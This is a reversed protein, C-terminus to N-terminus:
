THQITYPVPQNTDTDSLPPNDEQSTHLQTHQAHSSHTLHAHRPHINGPLAAMKYLNQLTKLVKHHKLYGLTVTCKIM